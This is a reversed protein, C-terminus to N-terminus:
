PELGFPGADADCTVDDEPLTQDLLYAATIETACASTGIVGHGGGNVTVLRSGPSEEHLGQASALSTAPDHTNNLVLLPTSLEHDFTGHYADEDSGPWQACPSSYWNWLIGMPAVKETEAANSTWVEPDSPNEGDTCAVGEFASAPQRKLLDLLDGIVPIGLPQERLEDTAQGLLKVLEQRADLRAAHVRGSDVNQGRNQAAPPQFPFRLFDIAKVIGTLLTYNGPSYLLQHTLLTLEQDSISLGPLAIPQDRLSKLVREFRAKANGTLPCALIGAQDCKALMYEYTDQLGEDSGFRTTMPETAGNGDRGQQWEVPDVVSDTVVARVRDPFMNAYAAGLFTGYSVGYYTLKEDGVAQRILDMDRATDATSMNDIIPGATAACIKALYADYAQNAAIQEAGVPYRKDPRPVEEVDDPRSCELKESGGVGRPDIGIVDFRSAVEEPLAQPLMSASDVASGGPGGPNWFMSGIRNDPDTAPIKILSLTITEGDPEDYDLPVDATTCQAPEEANECAGWQLDPVPAVVQTAESPSAETVTESASAPVVTLAAASIVVAAPLSLERISPRM